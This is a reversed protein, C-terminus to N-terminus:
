VNYMPIKEEKWGGLLHLHIHSVHATKGINFVLKCAKNIKQDNAIKKAIFILHSLVSLDRKSFDNKWEIHAKPIFLLHIPAEPEINKVAVMRRDEYIISAPIEKKVIKCFICQM